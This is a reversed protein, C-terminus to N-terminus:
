MCHLSIHALPVFHGYKTFKDIIVMITDFRNSKPLGEVFDMSVVKWAQQPVPLPQLLGANKTHVVKAQQYIDCARIFDRITAKM